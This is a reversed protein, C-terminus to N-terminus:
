SDFRKNQWVHSEVLMWPTKLLENCLWPPITGNLVGQLRSILEEVPTNEITKLPHIHRAVLKAVSPGNIERSCVIACEKIAEARAAIEDDRAFIGEPPFVTHVYYSDRPGIDWITYSDTQGFNQDVELGTSTCFAVKM